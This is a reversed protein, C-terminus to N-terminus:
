LLYLYVDRCKARHGGHSPCELRRMTILLWQQTSGPTVLPASRPHSVTLSEKGGLGHAAPGQSHHWTLTMSRAVKAFAGSVRLERCAGSGPGPSAPQSTVEPLHTRRWMRRKGSDFYGM